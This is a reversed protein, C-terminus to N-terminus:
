NESPTIESYITEFVGNKLSGLEVFLSEGTELPSYFVMMKETYDKPLKLVVSNDGVSVRILMGILANENDLMSTSASGANGGIIPAKKNTSIIVVTGGNIEASGTEGIDIKEFLYVSGDNIVINNAKIADTDAAIKVTGGDITVDNAKLGKNSMIVDIEANQSLAIGNEAEMADCSTSIVIKGGEILIKDNANLGDEYSDIGIVGNSITLTGDAEIGRCDRRVYLERQGHVTADYEVYENNVICYRTEDEPTEETLLEYVADTRIYIVGSTSIEVNNASIGNGATILKLNSNGDILVNADTSVASKYSDAIFIGGHFTVDNSADIGNGEKAIIEIRGDTMEITGCSNIGNTLCNIKTSGSNIKVYGEVASAFDNDYADGSKIGGKNLSNLNLKGGNINVGRKGYISYSPSTININGGNITLEKTNSIGYKANAEINLTGKGDITLNCSRVRLVAKEGDNTESDSLFNETDQPLIIRVSSCGEAYIAPMYMSKCDISVGDLVLVVGENPANVHVYSNTVSGYLRYAGGSTINLARNAYQSLDITEHCIYGVVNGENGYEDGKFIDLSDKISEESAFVSKLIIINVFVQGEPLPINEIPMVYGDPVSNIQIRFGEFSEFEYKAVGEADTIKPSLCIGDKCIQLNIGEIPNGFQDVARVTYIYFEHKECWICVGNEYSHPVIAIEEQENLIADCVSCKEGETLGIEECTPEKRELVMSTHGLANIEVPAELIEGCISCEVGESVGPRTCSPKVEPIIKEVHGFAAIQEQEFLIEECTSCKAGETLGTETCTPEKRELITSTHGLANIKVPAELIEGCVSCKKGKTNGADKCTPKVAPIEEARHHCEESETETDEDETKDNDENSEPKETDTKIDTETDTSTDTDVDGGCSAFVLVLIMILAFLLFLRKM